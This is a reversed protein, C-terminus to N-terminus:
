PAAHPCSPRPFVDLSTPGLAPIKERPAVNTQAVLVPQAFGAPGLADADLSSDVEYQGAVDLTAFAVLVEGHDGVAIDLDEGVGASGPVAEPVMFAGVQGKGKVLAGAGQGA